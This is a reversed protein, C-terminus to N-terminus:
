YGTEKRCVHCFSPIAGLPKGCHPCTKAAEAPAVALPEVDRGCHKCVVAEAKITEACFPCKRGAAQADGQGPAAEADAQAAAPMFGAALLAFIGFILGLILWGIGSRGKGSAIVASFVGCAIWAIIWEM